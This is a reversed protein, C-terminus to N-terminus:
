LEKNIDIPRYKKCKQWFFVVIILEIKLLQLM